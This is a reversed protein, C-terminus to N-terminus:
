GLVFWFVTPGKEQRNELPRQAIHYGPGFGHLKPIPNFRQLRHEGRFNQSLQQVTMRNLTTKGASLYVHM